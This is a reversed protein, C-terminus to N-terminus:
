SSEPRDEDEGALKMWLGTLLLSCRKLSSHSLLSLSLFSLTFHTFRDEFGKILLSFRDPETKTWQNQARDMLDLTQDLQILGVAKQSEQLIWSGSGGPSPNPSLTGAYNRQKKSNKDSSRAIQV